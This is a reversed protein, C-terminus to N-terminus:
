CGTILIIPIACVNRIIAETKPNFFTGLEGIPVEAVGLLLFRVM